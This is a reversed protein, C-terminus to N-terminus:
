AAYRTEKCRFDSRRLGVRVGLTSFRTVSIAGAVSDRKNISSQPGQLPLLNYLLLLFIIVGPNQEILDYLVSAISTITDIFTYLM